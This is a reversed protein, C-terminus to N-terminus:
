RRLFVFLVVGVLFARVFGMLSLLLIGIFFSNYSVGLLNLYSLSYYGPQPITFHGTVIHTLESNKWNYTVAFEYQNKTRSTTPSFECGELSTNSTANINFNIDRLTGKSSVPIVTDDASSSLTYLIPPNGSELTPNTQDNYSNDTSNWSCDGIIADSFIEIKRIEMIRSDYNSLVISVGDESVGSESCGLPPGVPCREPILHATVPATLHALAGISVLVVLVVWGYTTLFEMVKRKKM